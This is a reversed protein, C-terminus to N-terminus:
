FLNIAKAIRQPTFSQINLSFRIRHGFDFGNAKYEKSIDSSIWLPCYVNLVGGFLSAYIGADAVAKTPYSETVQGSSSITIEKFQAVGLDAFLKFVPIPLDSSLNIAANWKDSQGYATPTKINGFGEAFQQAWLGTNENRGIFTQSYTYDYFGRIGDGRLNYRADHTNNFLFAGFYARATIKRGKPGLVRSITYDATAWAFSKTGYPAGYRIGIGLQQPMLTIKNSMRYSIDGFHSLDMHHGNSGNVTNVYRIDENVFHYRLTVSQNLPSRATKPKFNFRVFPDIRLFRITEDDFGWTQQYATYNVANAGFDINKILSSERYNSHVLVSYSGNLKNSGIGYIPMLTFEFPKQIAISNYVALGVQAGDYVNGGAVPTWYIMSRTPNEVGGLFKFKPKEFRALFWKGKIKYRLNNNRQNVETMVYNPDIVIKDYNGNPFAVVDTGSFGPYWKMAAVTDHTIGVVQFPAVLSGKNKVEIGEEYVMWGYTKSSATNPKRKRKIQYDLVHNTKILDEFFWSLDKHATAEFAKRIDYPQPHKFKWADFYAHMCQDYVKDGLYARLYNFSAATKYYVMLAYNGDTFEQAKGEIPQDDNTLQPFRSGLYYSMRQKLTDIGLLKQLGHGMGIANGITLEPYKTALYRLENASNIGEDMWPHERENSGLIGYFWNHGVEHVIVTELEIDNSVDGINTITPYEMGGGASITGDVATVISYPYDGNWESYYKVADHLYQVSKKWYRSNGTTFYSWLSVLKGSKPFEYEGKLVHWRKDAFWAFDHVNKQVFRLTKWEPSSPPFDDTGLLNGLKNVKGENFLQETEKAKLELMREEQPNGTLEGTAAVLYNAPVTISVDFDGYESYFEGQNLYPMQNWGNRGYVAPKPFWQTIQYSQGIHGLRSFLGSPIKVYFPTTIVLTSDPQLPKKLKVKAVDIWTEADEDKDTENEKHKYYEWKLTDDGAKFLLSDIFGRDAESAYHFKLDGNELLQKALQTENNKYANPWLHFYIYKLPHPSNNKYEITEFGMLTHDVDNLKVEIKYNVQQQFYNTDAKYKGPRGSAAREPDTNANDKDKEWPRATKNQDKQKNNEEKKRQDRQKQLYRNNQAPAYLVATCGLLMLFVKYIKVRYM